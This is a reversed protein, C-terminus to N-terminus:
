LCYIGEGGGYAIGCSCGAEGRNGYQGYRGLVVITDFGEGCGERFGAPIQGPVGSAGEDGVEAVVLGQFVGLAGEVADAVSEGALDGRFEDGLVDAFGEVVDAGDGTFDGGVFDQPVDESLEADALLPKYVAM